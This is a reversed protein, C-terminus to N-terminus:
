PPVLIARAPGIRVARRPAGVAGHRRGAGGIAGRGESVDYLRPLLYTLTTKGAGSAGVFAAMQGPAVDLSVDSLARAGSGYSFSVHDYTVRGAVDELPTAGPAESIEAPLDGYDFVREFLALSSQVT